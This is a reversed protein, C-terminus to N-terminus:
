IVIRANHIWSLWLVAQLSWSAALVVRSVWRGRLLLAWGVYAPVIILVYRPMSIVTGAFITAGLAIAPFILHAIRDARGDALRAFTLCGVVAASTMVVQLLDRWFMEGSKGRLDFVEVAGWFDPFNAHGFYIRQQEFYYLPDGSFEAFHLLLGLLVLPPLM